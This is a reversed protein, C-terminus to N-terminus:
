KPTFSPAYPPRAPPPPVYSPAKAPPVYPSTGSAPPQYAPKSSAPPAYPPTTSAPPVYPPKDAPPKYTPDRDPKDNGDNGDKDRLPDFLSSQRLHFTIRASRGVLSGGEDRVAVELHHTGRDLDTIRIRESRLGKAVEKGDVVYSLTHGEMLSPELLVDVDVGGQAAFLTGDDPPATIRIATYLEAAVPEAGFAPAGGAAPMAPATYVSPEPLRVEQANPMPRDTYIVSGDPGISKYATGGAAAASLLLGLWVVHRMGGLM